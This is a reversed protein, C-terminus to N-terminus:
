DGATDVPGRLKDMIEDTPANLQLYGQLPREEGVTDVPGRLRDMIEDTSANLHLYGLLSEEDSGVRTLVLGTGEPDTTVDFQDGSKPTIGSIADGPIVLDGNDSVTIRM